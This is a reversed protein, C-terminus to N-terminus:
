LGALKAPGFGLGVLVTLIAAVAAHAASSWSNLTLALTLAAVLATVVAHVVVLFRAPFLKALLSQFSGGTVAPIGLGALFVLGITIAAYWHSGVVLVTQNLVALVGALLSLFVAVSPALKM